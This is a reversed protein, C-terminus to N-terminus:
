STRPGEDASRDMTLGDKTPPVDKTLRISRRVTRRRPTDRTSSQLYRIFGGIKSRTKAAQEFLADFQTKTVYDQDLAVYLESQVETCSRQAYRLFRAFESDSGSDFGEAINHMVSGAARQIQDRLGFDKAFSARSTCQYVNRTLIRADQWADIDEFRSITM